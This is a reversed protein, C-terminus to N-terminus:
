GFWRRSVASQYELAERAHGNLFGFAAPAFSCLEFMRAVFADVDPVYLFYEPLVPGVVTRAAPKDSTWAISIAAGKERITEPYRIAEFTELGSITEDFATLGADPQIAKLAQWMDPLKHRFRDKLERVPFSRSLESKILMEVSHHMLNGAIPALGAMAAGRGAIYYQLGFQFLDRRIESDGKTQQVDKRKTMNQDRAEGSFQPVQPAQRAGGM